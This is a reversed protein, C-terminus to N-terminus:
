CALAAAGRRAASRAAGLAPGELVEAAADAGTGLFLLVCRTVARGTAVELAEAYAAVQAHHRAALVAPSAGADVRDTKYDVVVLGDDEEVVLDVFGELVGDASRGALPVGVYLEKYHRRTAARRVAESGLAARAMIAVEGTRRVVGHARAQERAVDEVGRGAPDVGQGLDLAALVGHVARGLGLADDDSGHRGTGSTAEGGEARAGPARGLDSARVVPRRGLRGMLEARGAALRTAEEAWAGAARSEALADHVGAWADASPQRQGRARRRVPARLEDEASPVRRWLLPHARCLETLRAAPGPEPAGNRERHHLCLVLHDRARTMAVYLLRVQEMADLARDAEAAAEYGATRLTPGARAELRGDATWLVADTRHGATDDRELGAVVVVPFELGKAGHVTMVRVADDDVDPPGLVPARGDGQRQLEAWALFGSVTGGHVEDFHRAQDALWRLRHWHDRPRRHAFALEFSHLDTMAERVLAAPTSWWRRRHLEALVAMARGVPHAELGPPAAALPDFAGGARRWALLEDDGCGLGPARLAALVSVADTPDDAAALVSLVDQVDDSGWLLAAGELRYPVGAEALAEELPPLATRAPILLAVDRWRAARAPADLDPDSVPWGETVARRIAAATDRAATRRTEGLSADAPAGLVVVPPLELLPARDDPGGMGPLSLQLGAGARVGTPHAPRVPLLRRHAAQGESPAEPFLEAFVTDVFSLIGPVSRFNGTLEVREGIAAAVREFVAVDARRFRYISQCPDGVVFLAGPRAHELAGDDEVASALWGALAAQLPDTDQFEDVLLRRWRTRLAARARPDEAVLRRAHVLLDHFTLRGQRARQAADELTARALRALLEAMVPARVTDLLAQRAEEAAACAARVQGVHGDWHELRGYGCALSPLRVLLPLLAQEDGAVAEVLARADALRGTLHGLLLDGPESCWPAMAMARGLADLLPAVDCAPWGGPGPRAGQLADLSGTLRDWQGRLTWALEAIDREHLGLVLGRLLMPEAEPDDLLADVLAALGAEFDARDAVADLVDFGPPIGAALAHESLIQRAFAHLTCVGARDLAEAAAALGPDVTGALKEAMAARLRARLEAAAAETFTIVALEAPSVEGREVIAMVRAVLATTKGTGAGAVVVMSRDVAGSVEARAAADPVITATM